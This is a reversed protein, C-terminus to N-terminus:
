SGAPGAGLAAAVFAAVAALHVGILEDRVDDPQYVGFFASNSDYRALRSATRLDDYDAYISRCHVRVYNERDTHNTSHGHGFYARHREVLHVAAYFAITAAWDAFQDVDIAALCDRNREAKRRHQEATPM